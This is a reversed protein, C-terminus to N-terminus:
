IVKIGKIALIVRLVESVLKVRYVRHDKYGKFVKHDRLDKSSVSMSGSRSTLIGTIFVIHPLAGLSGLTELKVWLTHRRSHSCLRIFALYPSRHATQVMTAKLDKPGWLGRLVKYVRHDKLVWLDRLGPIV